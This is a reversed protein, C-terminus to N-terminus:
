SFVIPLKDGFHWTSDDSFRIPFQDGFHWATNVIVPEIIYTVIIADTTGDAWKYATNTTPNYNLTVNFHYTGVESGGSGTVTYAETSALAHSTGDYTFTRNIPKEVLIYEKPTYILYITDQGYSPLADYEEQEILVIKSSLGQGIDEIEAKLSGEAKTARQTETNILRVAEQIAEANTNISDSNAKEAKQARAIEKNLADIINYQVNVVTQWGHIGYIRCEFTGDDYPYYWIVNKFEPEVRSIYNQVM